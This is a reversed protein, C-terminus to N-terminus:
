RFYAALEGAITQSGREAAQNILADPPPPFAEERRCLEMSSRSLADRDGKFRGFEVVANIVAPISGSKVITGRQADVVQYSCLLEASSQRKTVTVTAHGRRKPKDKGDSIESEETFVSRTEPPTTVVISNIKGFVFYQIGLATGVEAANGPDVATIRRLGSDAILQQLRQRTIFEVFEFGEPDSTVHSAAYDAVLDGVGAYQWAGTRNEFTMIVVRQMAAARCRDYRDAADKYSPVYSIAKSYARAAEKHRGSTELAGASRYNKEAASKRAATLEVDVNKMPLDVPVGTKPHTLKPLSKVMDSIKTITSYSEAVADWDDLSEARKAKQYMDDYTKPLVDALFNMAEEHDPKQRLTQVSYEISQVVEGREYSQRAQNWSAPGCGVLALMASAVVLITLKLICTRELPKM